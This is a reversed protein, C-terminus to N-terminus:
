VRVLEAVGEVRRLLLKTDFHGQVSTDHDIVLTTDRGLGELIECARAKQQEGLHTTLEDILLLSVRVGLRSYILDGMALPMFALDVCRRQGGSLKEYDREYVLGDATTECYTIQLDDDTMALQCFLTGDLLLGLYKNAASELDYLATRLVLVPIGKAGFGEVWFAATAEAESAQERLAEAESIKTDLTAVQEATLRAREAFPNQADNEVTYRSRAEQLQAQVGDLNARIRTFQSLADGCKTHAARAEVIAAETAQQDASGATNLRDLEEATNTLQHTHNAVQQQANRVAVEAAHMHQERQQEPLPQGCEGCTAAGAALIKQYAEQARTLDRTATAREAEIGGYQRQLNAIRATPRVASLQKTLTDLHAECRVKADLWQQEGDLLKTCEEVKAAYGTGAKHLTDLTAAKRLEWEATQATFDQSELASKRARSDVLSHEHALHAAAAKDRSSKAVKAASACANLGFAESLLEKRRKDADTAFTGVAGQGVSVCARWLAHPLGVVHEILSQQDGIGEPLDIGTVRIKAGQGRKKDRRVVVERVVEGQTVDLVCEVSCADANDNVVDDARLTAGAQGAKRPTTAGYLCWMAADVLATKGSAIPATLLGFRIEHLPFLLPGAIACFNNIRVERLKVIQGLPPIARAEPVVALYARGAALVSEVSGTAQAADGCNEDVYAEIANDLTLAFAPATQEPTAVIAKPRVGLPLQEIAREWAEGGIDAAPAVLEVVDRPGVTAADWTGSLELRHYKPFDDFEIFQPVTSVSTILAVGHPDDREGMNQQYPSGLYWVDAGVDTTTLNQRKHYHGFYAARMKVLDAMHLVGPAKHGGNTRAGGIEAHGFVTLPGHKEAAENLFALLARQEDPQERWPLFALRRDSQVLVDDTVTIGPLGRFVTMGHVRGDLSVQDHNGPVLTARLGRWHQDIALLVADVQRVNLTGRLDWFDGTCIIEASHERALKGVRRLVECCTDLTANNVHLDGFVIARWPLDGTLAQEAEMTHYAQPQPTPKPRKAKPAPLTAPAPAPDVRRPAKAM